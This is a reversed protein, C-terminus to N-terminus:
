RRQAWHALAAQAAAGWQWPQRRRRPSQAARPPRGRAACKNFLIVAGSLGIWVAVYTYATIIRKMVSEEEKNDDGGAM